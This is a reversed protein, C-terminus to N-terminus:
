SPCGPDPRLASSVGRTVASLQEPKEPELAAEPMCEAVLADGGPFEIWAQWREPLLEPHPWWAPDPRAFVRTPHGLGREQCVRALDRWPTPSALRIRQVRAAAACVAAAPIRAPALGALALLERRSFARASGSPTPRQM